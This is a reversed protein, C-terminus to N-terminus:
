EITYNWLRFLNQHLIVNMRNKKEDYGMRLGGSVVNLRLKVQYNRLKRQVIEFSQLVYFKKIRRIEIAQYM